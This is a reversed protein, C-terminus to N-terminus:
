SVRRACMLNTPPRRGYVVVLRCTLLVAFFTLCTDLHLATCLETYLSQWNSISASLLVFGTFVPLLTLSTIQAVYVPSRGLQLKHQALYMDPYTLIYCRDLNKFIFGLSFDVQLQLAENESRLRDVLKQLELKSYNDSVFLKM